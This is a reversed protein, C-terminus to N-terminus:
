AIVVSSTEICVITSRDVGLKQGAEEQTYGLTKPWNLFNGPKM